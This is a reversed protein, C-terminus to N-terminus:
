RAGYLSDTATWQVFAEEGDLLLVQVGMDAETAGGQGLASIEYHMMTLYQDLTRAVHMLVACPAASDTAGVFGEPRLKSDYHAVLTLLNAQGPRVWPPERRFIINRFPVEAGGSVPTVATSNQWEVTWAPLQARFFSVFHEQVRAHEATGPVRPTLIPALLGGTAPDLDEHGSPIARLFSDSLPTYASALPVTLTLALALIALPRTIALLTRACRPLTREHSAM